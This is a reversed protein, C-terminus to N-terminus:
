RGHGLTSRLPHFHRQAISHHQWIQPRSPRSRRRPRLNKCKRATFTNTLEAQFEFSCRQLVDNRDLSNLVLFAFAVPLLWRDFTKLCRKELEPDVYIDNFTAAAGDDSTATDNPEATVTTVDKLKVDSIIESM